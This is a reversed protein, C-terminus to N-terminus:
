PILFGSFTTFPPSSSYYGSGSRRKIWVKDGQELRVLLMNTGTQYPAHNSSQSLATVKSIGNLVIYYSTTKSAYSCINVFFQYMGAVPATFIGTNSNYGGGINTIVNSFILVDGTWFSSQSPIGATFGVQKTLGEMTIRTDTLNREIDEKLKENENKLSAVETQLFSNDRQSEQLSSIIQKMDIVDKILTDVSRVLSMRILTEQNLLQRFVDTSKADVRIEKMSTLTYNDNGTVISLGKIHIFSVSLVFVLLPKFDM